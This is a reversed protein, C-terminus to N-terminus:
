PSTRRMCLGVLEGEALRRCSSQVDCDTDLRCSAMPTPGGTGHAVALPQGLRDLLAICVGGVAARGAPSVCRANVACQADSMCAPAATLKAAPPFFRRPPATAPATAVPHQQVPSPAMERANSANRQVAAGELVAAAMLELAEAGGGAAPVVPPASYGLREIAAIAHPEGLSAGRRYLALPSDRQTDRWVGQALLMQKLNGANFWAVAVGSNAAGIFDNYAEVPQAPVGAAPCGNQLILGLNNRSYPDHGAAPELVDYARKCDGQSLLELGVKSQGKVACGGPVSVLLMLVAFIRKDM